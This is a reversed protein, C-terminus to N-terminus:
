RTLPNSCETVTETLFDDTKNEIAQPAAVPLRPCPYGLELYGMASLIKLNNTNM